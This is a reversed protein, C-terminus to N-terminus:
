EFELRWRLDVGVNGVTSSVDNINDYSGQVSIRPNLRWEVNSRVERDQDSTLGSTVSARVADTLRKGVTVQPETRGTKPDYASGFRFDDIVPIAQKVARDAGSVTALAELAASAGLSGAQLQDVEARTMGITLLLVIDEQSLPPDSTLDLRLNDADGYAHLTIRWVGGRVGATVVGGGSTSAGVASTDTYRRYETVALVDVIPAIRTPDDFRIYGQRVDFDNGRLHFRGGPMTKLDGRLGARQNTGTVTLSGSDIALALEALNNRIRLPARSRVRLDFTLTDLSPDYTEVNTRKARVGLASLDTTLGIPRTYEFQTLLVDGTIHPLRAAATEQSAGAAAASGSKENLSVVLDADVTATVGDLPALHVGRAIVNGEMVGALLQKIPAAGRAEITGGAFKAQARAIRVEAADAHLDIALESVVSPLGKVAIEGGSVHLDGDVRPARWKGALTVSGELRGQAREVRPVLAPLVGLDIPSLDFAVGLDVDSTARTIAGHVTVAGKLGRAAQLDFVLPPISVRDNALTIVDGTARMVVREAGAGVALRTPAFRIAAHEMDGVQARDITLVGSVRGDLADGKAPAAARADDDDEEKAPSLIHAIAGLDFDRFTVAGDIKPKPQRTARLHDVHVMGAALEGDLVVEGHAATDRRYADADFAPGIPAGCRTKGIPKVPPSTQHLAVHARSPGLPTGRVRVPSVDLDSQLTFDDITGDVTAIGSVNGETQSRIAGLSQVRFLPVSEVVVSAHLAGGRAIRASGLVSGSPPKGPEHHKELTAARVTVDSGQIGALRDVQRFELDVDGDDFQEGWIGIKTMHVGARVDVFGGGCIDEPGGMALHISARTAVNAELEDFRPDEDFKWIALFDRLDMATTAAVGDMTFSAKGGFELRASPMEYPSKGKVAKVDELDVTTGQFAVRGSKVDGFPIDGLTFGAIAVDADLQPDNFVGHVRVGTEAQGALPIDALPSIDALDVANKPADVKLVNDFGISCYGEDVTSRGVQAHVNQFELATPRIAVHTALSAEHFGILRKHSPDDIAKDAVVFNATRASIDGDLHLPVATGKFTSGHLEKIDWGVHPHPSIGLDRMLSEFSVGAADLKAKIPVGKGLPEVIVDSLTAVGDAIHVTLKPARVVNKKVDLDAAIERAFHYKGLAVDHAEFRAQEVDPITTDDAYRLDGEFGIWGDTQPLSAAREALGLPARVRVHGDVRPMAKEEEGSGGTPLVVRLHSAEIEVRRKDNAPLGCRPLTGEAVDLDASGEAGLRRVLVMHPEYRVRAELACLADDDVAVETAGSKTEHERRRQFAARGIRTAIEFSAGEPGDDDVTLDVDIDKAALRAGDVTLDVAAATVAFVSFPVHLPKKEKDDNKPLEIPLNRIEGDTVVLRISPEDIEIQDIVLKGALLAFLRPRVSIRDSTVAAPGGDTSAVTVNTLEVSIPLLHVDIAYSARIGQSSLVRSTERAAFANIAPSRALAALAVPVAGVLAFLVVFVRAVIMTWDRRRKRPVRPLGSSALPDMTKGHM